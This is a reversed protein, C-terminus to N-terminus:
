PAEGRDPGLLQVFVYPTGDSRTRRTPEPIQAQVRDLEAGFLQCLDGIQTRIEAVRADSREAAAQGHASVAIEIDRLTVAAKALAVLSAGGLPAFTSPADRLTDRITGPHFHYPLKTIRALQEVAENALQYFAAIAEDRRTEIHWRSQEVLARTEEVQQRLERAQQSLAATNMRLEEGQQFYGLVLWLLAVPGVIGGFFTAWDAPSMDGVQQWGLWISAVGSGILWLATVALWARGTTARMRPRTVRLGPRRERM